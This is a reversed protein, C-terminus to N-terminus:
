PLGVRIDEDTENDLLDSDVDGNGLMKMITMITMMTMM